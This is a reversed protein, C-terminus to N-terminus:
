PPQNNNDFNKPDVYTFLDDSFGTPSFDLDDIAIRTEQDQADRTIWGRLALPHDAFLLTLTGDAPSQTRDLRLALAGSDRAVLLVSVEGSLHLHDQLLIGLPTKELPLNSTQDLDGNHYILLGGGAVLLLPSPPDYEFRM